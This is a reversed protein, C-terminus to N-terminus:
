QFRIIFESCHRRLSTSIWLSEMRCKGSTRANEAKAATTRHGAGNNFCCKSTTSTTGASRSASPCHWSTSSSTTQASRKEHQWHRASSSCKFVYQCISTATPHYKTARAEGVHKLIQKQKQQLLTQTSRSCHCSRCLIHSLPQSLLSHSLPEQFWLQRSGCKFYMIEIVNKACVGEQIRTGDQCLCRAWAATQLLMRGHKVGVEGPGSGRKCRGSNKAVPWGLPISCHM